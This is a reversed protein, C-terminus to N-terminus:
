HFCKHGIRRSFKVVVGLIGIDIQGYSGISGIPSYSVDPKCELDTIFSTEVAASGKAADFARSVERKAVEFACGTRSTKTHRCDILGVSAHLARLVTEAARNKNDIIRCHSSTQLTSKREEEEFVVAYLLGIHSVSNGDCVTGGIGSLIASPVYM